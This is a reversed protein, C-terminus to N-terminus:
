VKLMRKRAHSAQCAMIPPANHPACGPTLPASGHDGAYTSLTLSNIGHDRTTTRRRRGADPGLPTRAIPEDEAIANGPEGAYGVRAEVEHESIRGVVELEGAVQQPGVVGADVADVVRPVFEGAEGVVVGERAGPQLFAVAGQLRVAGDPHDAGIVVHEAEAGRHLIEAEPDQVVHDPAFDIGHRVEAAPAEGVRVLRQDPRGLAGLRAVREVVLAQLSAVVIQLHAGVPQERDARPRLTQLVVAPALRMRRLLRFGEQM